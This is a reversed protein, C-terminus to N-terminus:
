IPRVHQVLACALVSSTMLFTDINDMGGIIGVWNVNYIYKGLKFVNGVNKSDILWDNDSHLFIVCHKVM